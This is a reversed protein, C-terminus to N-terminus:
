TTQQPIETFGLREPPTLGLEQALTQFEAKLAPKDEFNNKLADRLKWPHTDGSFASILIQTIEKDLGVKNIYYLVLELNDGTWSFNTLLSNVFTEQRLFILYRLKEIFGQEKLIFFDDDRIEAGRASLILKEFAEDKEDDPIIGHRLMASLVKYKVRSGILKGYWFSRIFQPDNRFHIIGQPIQEIYTMFLSENETKKFFSVLKETIVGGINFVKDWFALYSEVTDNSAWIIYMPDLELFIDNIKGFFVPLDDDNIAHSINDIIYTYD